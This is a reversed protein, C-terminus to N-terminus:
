VKAPEEPVPLAEFDKEEAKSEREAIRKDLQEEEEKLEALSLKKCELEFQEHDVIDMIQEFDEASMTLNEASLHMVRAKTRGLAQHMKRVAECHQQTDTESLVPHTCTAVHALASADVDTRYKFTATVVEETRVLKHGKLERALEIRKKAETPADYYFDVMEKTITPKPNPRKGFEDRLLELLKARDKTEKEFKEMLIDIEMWALWEPHINKSAIPKVEKKESRENETSEGFVDFVVKKREEDIRWNDVFMVQSNGGGIVADRDVMKINTGIHGLGYETDMEFHEKRWLRGWARAFDQLADCKKGEHMYEVHSSVDIVRGVLDLKFTKLISQTYKSLIFGVISFVLFLLIMFVVLSWNAYNILDTKSDTGDQNMYYVLNAIFALVCLAFIAFMMPNAINVLHAVKNLAFSIIVGLLCILGAVMAAYQAKNLPSTPIENAKAKEKEIQDVITEWDPSAPASTGIFINYKIEWVVRTGVALSVSDDNGQVVFKIDAMTNSRMVKQVGWGTFFATTNGYYTLTITSNVAIRSGNTPARIWITANDRVNELQYITTDYTTAARVTPLLILIALIALIIATARM